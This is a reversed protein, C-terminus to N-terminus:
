NTIASAPTFNLSLGSMTAIVSFNANKSCSTFNIGFKVGARAIVYVFVYAPKDWKGHKLVPIARSIDTAGQLHLITHMVSTLMSFLSFTIQIPIIHCDKVTNKFNNRDEKSETRKM